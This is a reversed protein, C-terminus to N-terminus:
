TFLRIRFITMFANMGVGGFERSKRMLSPSMGPDRTRSVAMGLLFRLIKYSFRLGTSCWVMM